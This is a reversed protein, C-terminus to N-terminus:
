PEQTWSSPNPGDKYQPVCIVLELSSGSVGKVGAMIDALRGLFRNRPRSQAIQLRRQDQSDRIQSDWFLIGEDNINDREDEPDM